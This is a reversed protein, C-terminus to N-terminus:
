ASVEVVHARLSDLDVPNGALARDSAFQRIALRRARDRNEGTGPISSIEITAGSWADAVEVIYHRETTIPM